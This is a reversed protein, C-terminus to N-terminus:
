PLPSVESFIEITNPANAPLSTASGLVDAIPQTPNGSTRITWTQNSPNWYGLDSKGDGDYDGPTPIVGPTGGWPIALSVQPNSSSRLIWQGTSPRYIALDSLGDGDYDGPVPIDGLQGGWVLALSLSPNFSSRLIWQGTSPRYVALDALHDGDYDGPVPIDGPQGWQLTLSVSPNFSSLIFYQATSPRWVVFDAKGDGDYDGPTPIDGPAGWQKSIVKTPLSSPIVYFTAESPRWVAFDIFGDGDYDAPVPVDGPQGLTTQGYLNASLLLPNGMSQTTWVGTSPEWNIPYAPLKWKLAANYPANAPISLRDGLQITQPSSPNTSLHIQWTGNSPHFVALDFKGDGDYDGPVPIDGTTGWSLNYAVAPTSSLRISWLGTSPRFFGLDYEGDGDYDGVVPIDGPQGWPLTLVDNPNRSSRLVWQSTTPRYVAVDTIGDGDYDGPVPIDGPQGWPVALSQTQNFSSILYWTATSPRFVAYDTRGDGDYDGPVPIDGTQGWTQQFLSSPNSSPVVYYTATSPRWVAFDVTGDGDYDGPVPIDGPQGLSQTDESGTIANFRTWNASSPEWIMPAVVLKQVHSFGSASPVGAIISTAGAQWPFPPLTLSSQTASSGSTGVPITVTNSIFANQAIYVPTQANATASSPIIVQVQYVGIGGNPIGASVVQGTTGGVTAAVSNFPSNPQTGAYPNGDAVPINNANLDAVLGLGTALFLITENPQAPNASTVLGTGTTSCCTQTQYATVTETASTQGKAAAVSGGVSIGSGSAGPKRATLLLRSFAGTESAVVNPDNANNIAAVLGAVITNLDANNTYNTVDNNTVTYTYTASGVTITLVDGLQATGDISIAATPNGPQHIAGYAPRPETNGPAGFLGPNAAALVVPTASTVTVSGDAHVTRIYVSSSNRDGFHYSVEALVQTPSVYYLPAPLGDMFVQVNALRTPLNQQSSASVTSDALGGAPNDIEVITGVAATGANGGALYAGSTTVTENATNSATASLAISDYSATTSKSDLFVTDPIAGTLAVVNVDGSNANILSILGSVITTLTDKSKITYTYTNSGVTIAITDGSTISGALAITVYGTQRTIKSATNLIAKPSLPTDGPTYVLVRQNTADSVYLNTGDFALSTPSPITDVSGTNDITTSLLSAGQNTVLDTVFDPQGLVGDAAAGNAAPITNYILIRDNGGDAIFLRVGDSLVFRPFNLTKACAPYVTNGNVDTTSSSGCLPGSNNPQTSTMDPQGIVVDAPQANATPISNWILVRNFGLDSVFVHSGDSSVGVPNSLQTATAAPNLSTVPPQVSAGLNTQGLVIDAPAGNSTPITNWILVRYNGTDAVFLKGNQLWVGQPGRLTTASVEDTNPASTFDPQGLVVDAPANIATPLSNWILVRNNNTDAVVLRQGDTAVATPLNLSGNVTGPAKQALGPTISVYDVQGLVNFAPYGCLGCVGDGVPSTDVSLDAHPDQIYSTKFMLVRNNQGQNSAAYIYNSDAVWLQGNVYALGGVGGLIQGSAAGGSYTFETQGIVARAAQGNTFSAGELFRACVFLAIAFRFKM